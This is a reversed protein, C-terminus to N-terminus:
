QLSRTSPGVNYLILLDYGPLEIATQDDLVTPLKPSVFYM